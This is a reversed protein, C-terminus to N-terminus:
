NEPWQIDDKNASLLHTHVINQLTHRAKTEEELQSSLLSISSQLEKVQDKLAYVTDVLSKEEVITQNGSTEEIIIKEEEAILMQPSDLLAASILCM